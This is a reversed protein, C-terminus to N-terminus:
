KMGAVGKLFYNNRDASTIKKIFRKSKTVKNTQIKTGMDIHVIHGCIMWEIYRDNKGAILADQVDRDYIWWGNNRGEYIWVGEPYEKFIIDIIPDNIKRIKSPNDM